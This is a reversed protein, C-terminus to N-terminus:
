EDRGPHKDNALQRVAYAVDEEVLPVDSANVLDGDIRYIPPLGVTMHLDSANREVATHIIEKFNIM